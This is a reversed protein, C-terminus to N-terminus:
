RGAAERHSTEPAAASEIARVLRSLWAYDNAAPATRDSRERALAPDSESSQV